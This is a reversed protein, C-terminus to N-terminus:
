LGAAPALYLGTGFKSMLTYVGYPVAGLASSKILVVDGGQVPLDSAKGSEVSSLDLPISVRSGRETRLLEANSSFMAGGAATVAGLVTMGATVDFSGPHSVWGYVGVQGAAPVLIIDGPRAPLNLCGTMTPNSLDIVIPVVSAGRSNSISRDANSTSVQTVSGDPETSQRDGTGSADATTQGSASKASLDQSDGKNNKPDMAHPFLIVREAARDDGVGKTGGARGMVSLISEGPGNLSYTGPRAVMGMVEVNRSAYHQIFVHVRPERQFRRVKQALLEQTEEETLGAVRVEGVLPLGISGTGDVRADVERLEPLDDMSVRVVDGPGVPYDYSDGQSKRAEWLQRLPGSTECSTSQEVTGSLSDGQLSNDSPKITPPNGSSCGYCFYVAVLVVTLMMLKSYRMNDERIRTAVKLEKFPHSINRVL